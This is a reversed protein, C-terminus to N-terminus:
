HRGCLQQYLVVEITRVTSPFGHVILQRRRLAMRVTRGGSLRRWPPHCRDGFQDPGGTLVQDRGEPWVLSVTEVQQTVAALALGPPPAAHGSLGPLPTGSIMRGRVHGM